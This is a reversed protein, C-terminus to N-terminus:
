FNLEEKKCYQLLEKIPVETLLHIRLLVLASLKNTGRRLKSICSPQVGLAQALDGDKEIELYDKVADILKHKDIATRSM